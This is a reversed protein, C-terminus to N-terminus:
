PFPHPYPNYPEGRDAAGRRGIREPVERLRRGGLYRRVHNNDLPQLGPVVVRVVKFGADDIDPTTLDVAICELGSSRLADVTTHLNALASAASRDPVADLPITEGGHLLFDLAEVMEPRLAYLRGHHDLTTIANFNAGPDITPEIAATMRFGRFGLALEELALGVARRPDLDTGLGIVAHPPAGTRTTAMCLIVPVAVDLTLDVAVIDVPLPAFAEMMGAITPDATDHLDIRPCSLSNQWVIMFADREIVELAGRYMARVLTPACAMGTSIPDSIAPELTTALRYPVYVLAAPVLVEHGHTLSWGSVWRLPTSEDARGYPFGPEVYQKDSYLALDGPNVAVCDLEAYSATLFSDEDYLASCYREITEGVAKMVARDADLSTANGVNLAPQGTLPLTSSPVSRAWYVAPDDPSAEVYDVAAIIGTRLSVLRAARHLSEEIGPLPRDDLRDLALHGTV